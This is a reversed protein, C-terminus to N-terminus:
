QAKKVWNHAMNQADFNHYEIFEPHLQFQAM